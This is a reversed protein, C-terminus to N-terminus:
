VYGVTLNAYYNTGDYYVTLVDTANAATSLTNFGSSFLMTSPWTVARSGTADQKIIIVFNQGAVTNQINFSFAGTVTMKFTAYASLDINVTGSVSGLSQTLRVGTASIVGNSAKTTIGDVQALGPQSVSAVPLLSVSNIPTYTASTVKDSNTVFTGIRQQSFGIPLLETSVFVNTSDRSTATKEVYLYNTTNATLALTSDPTTTNYGGIFLPYAKVSVSLGTASEASVNMLYRSGAYWQAETYVTSSVGTVDKTSAISAGTYTWYGAFQYYGLVTSYGYSVQWGASGGFGGNSIGFRAGQGTTFSSPTSPATTDFTMWYYDVAPIVYGAPQYKGSETLLNSGSLPDWLNAADRRVANGYSIQGLAFPGYINGWTGGSYKAIYMMNTAVTTTGTYSTLGAPITPDTGSVTCWYVPNVTDGNWVCGDENAVATISGITSPIAPVTLGSDTYVRRQPSGALTVTYLKKGPTALYHVPVGGSKVTTGFRRSGVSIGLATYASRSYEEVWNVNDLIFTDNTTLSTSFRNTLFDVAIVKAGYKVSNTEMTLNNGIIFGWQAYLNKSWPAADIIKVLVSEVPAPWVASIATTRAV